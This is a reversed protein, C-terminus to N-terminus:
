KKDGGLINTKIAMAIPYLFSMLCVFLVARLKINFEERMTVVANGLESLTYSEREVTDWDAVFGVQRSYSIFFVLYGDQSARFTFSEFPSSVERFDTVLTPSDISNVVGVRYFNFTPVTINSISYEVGAQVPIYSFRDNDSNASLIGGSASFKWTWHNSYSSHLTHHITVPYSDLFLEWYENNDSNLQEIASVVDNNDSVSSISVEAPVISLSDTVASDNGSVPNDAMLEVTVDDSSVDYSGVVYNGSIDTTPQFEPLSMDLGMTLLLPIIIM